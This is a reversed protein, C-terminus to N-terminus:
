GAILPVRAQSSRPGFWSMEIRVRVQGAPWVHRCSVSPPQGAARRRTGVPIWPPWAFLSSNATLAVVDVRQGLSLLFAHYRPPYWTSGPQSARYDDKAMGGTPRGCFTLDAPDGQIDPATPAARVARIGEGYSIGGFSQVKVPKPELLVIISM